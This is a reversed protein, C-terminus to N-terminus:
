AFPCRSGFDNNDIACAGIARMPKCGPETILQNPGAFAATRCLHVGTGTHSAAANEPKKVCVRFHRLSAQILNVAYHPIWRDTGTEKANAQRRRNHISKSVAKRM